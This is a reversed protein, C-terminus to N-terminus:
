IVIGWGLNNRVINEAGFVEHVARQVGESGRAHGYDDGGIFGGQKVKPLWAQIDALVTEYEHGGDIFVFDLSADAYLEAARASDMRVAKYHGEVPKMNNVFENYLTDDLVAPDFNIGGEQHEPGGKWTDVCDFQIQKGSNIIEVAMFAASQGRWTGIEVFHSGSPFHAVADKYVDYFSCWGQINQCFHEM